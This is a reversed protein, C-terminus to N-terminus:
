KKYLKDQEEFFKDINNKNLLVGFDNPVEMNSNPSVKQAIIKGVFPYYHHLDPYNNENSTISNVGMFNHVKGFVEVVDYLWRKYDEYRDNELMFNFLQKSTPTTFIIFKSNPNSNKVALMIKKLDKHYIYPKGYEPLFSKLQKEINRSKRAQSIIKTQKINQRTYDKTSPTKYHDLNKLSSKLTDYSVLSKYRYFPEKAKQLYSAPSKNEKKVKMAEKEGTAWFDIGIIIYKFEKVKIKKAINIWQSYEFPVMNSCALNFVNLGLFDNQSIYTSRSSGLFLTDYQELGTFYIKNTKLQRENTGNQAQNYKHSHSFTWLPDMWYNLASTPMMVLFLLIFLYNIWTKNNM